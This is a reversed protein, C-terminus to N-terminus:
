LEGVLGGCTILGLVGLVPMAELQIVDHSPPEM